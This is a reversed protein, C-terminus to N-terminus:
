GRVPRLYTERIPLLSTNLSISVNEFHKPHRTVSCLGSICWLRPEMCPGAETVSDPISLGKCCGDISKSLQPT